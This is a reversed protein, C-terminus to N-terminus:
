AKSEAAAALEPLSEVPTATWVRQWPTRTAAHRIRSDNNDVVLLLQNRKQQATFVSVAAGEGVRWSDWGEFPGHSEMLQQLRPHHEFALHLKEYPDAHGGPMCRPCCELQTHRCVSISKRYAKEGCAPCTQLFEPLMKQGSATCQELEGALVRRQSAQCVDLAEVVTIRGDDSASIRYSSQSAEACHFPEVAKADRVLVQAWNSFPHQAEMGKIRFTIHGEAWKCWIVVAALVEDQSLGGTECAQDIVAQLKQDTLRSSRKVRPALPEMALTQLLEASLEQGSADFYRHRVVPDPSKEGASRVSLRLVPRDSLRCEVVRASGDEVAFPRLLHPQLEHQSVPQRLPAAHMAPGTEAIQRQIWRFLTSSATVKELVKDEKLVEDFTFSVRHAGNFQGRQHEKPYLAYYRDSTKEVRFQLTALAWLAFEQTTEDIM